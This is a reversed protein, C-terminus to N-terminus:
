CRLTEEIERWQKPTWVFTPVGALRFFALWREQDSTLVGNESKLEAVIVHPSKAERGFVLDPFGPSCRKSSYTHYVDSWGNRRAFRVVERQFDRESADDAIPPSDLGPGGAVTATGIKDGPRYDRM